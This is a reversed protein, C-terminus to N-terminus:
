EYILKVNDVNLLSGDGGTFYDGFKSPTAVVVIWKPTRDSRYKLKLTEHTWTGVDEGKVMRAYAIINPDNELDILHRESPRTRVIFPFTKGRYEATRGNYVDGDWDALAIYVQCSDPRGKLYDMSSDGIKNIKEPHYKYDFSMKSPRSGFPRGFSLVGNTGDTELYTGTFINGAAFKLVIYKSLLNCAFGSGSPTDETPTSNSDGVTTAGRNGTDWFSTGGEAWPMYLKGSKSWQEFDANPLQEGQFYFEGEMPSQSGFSVSYLYKVDSKLGDLEAQYTTSSPFQVLIDPVTIWSSAAAEKYKIEPVVGNPRVGSIVTTGMDSTRASASPQLAEETQYVFVRWEKIVDPACAEKVFFRLEDSFNFTATKTPDPYVTGHQGGLSFKTVKLASVNTKSSVYIIVIRSFDDIVANGIQGEVEIERKILQTAKITWVYDQYTRLTLELDRSLDMVSHSAPLVEADNTVEIRKLKINRLDATDDVYLSVERKANDITSTGGAAGNADCQGEVEFATIAGDVIPYPIDNEIDCGALGSALALLALSRTFINALNRM